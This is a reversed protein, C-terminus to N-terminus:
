RQRGAILPPPVSWGRLWDTPWPPRVRMGSRETSAAAARRGRSHVSQELGPIPNVVSWQSLRGSPQFRSLRGSAAQPPTLRRSAQVAVAVDANPRGRGAALVRGLARPRGRGAAFVQDGASPLDERRAFSMHSHDSYNPKDKVKPDDRRVSLQTGLWDPRSVTNWASASGVRRAMMSRRTALGAETLSSARGKAMDNGATICCM